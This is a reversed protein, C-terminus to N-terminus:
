VETCFAEGPEFKSGYDPDVSQELPGHTSSEILQCVQELNSVNLETGPGLDAALFGIRHFVRLLTIAGAFPHTHDRGSFEPSGRKAIDHLLAAWKLTEAQKPTLM